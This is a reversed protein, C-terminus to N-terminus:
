TSTRIFNITWELCEKFLCEQWSVWIGAKEQIVRELIIWVIFLQFGCNFLQDPLIKHNM